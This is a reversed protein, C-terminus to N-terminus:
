EQVVIGVKFVGKRIEPFEEKGGEERLNKVEERFVM